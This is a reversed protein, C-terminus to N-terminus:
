TLLYDFQSDGDEHKEQNNDDFSSDGGFAPLDPTDGEDGDGNSSDKDNDDEGDTPPVYEPLGGDTDQQEDKDM